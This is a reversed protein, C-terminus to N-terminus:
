DEKKELVKVTYDSNPTMQLQFRTGSQFRELTLSGPPTFFRLTTDNGKEFLFIVKEPSKGSVWKEVGVLIMIEQSSIIDAASIRREILICNRKLDKYIAPVAVAVAISSGVITIGFPISLMIWDMPDHYNMGGKSVLFTVCTLLLIAFSAM